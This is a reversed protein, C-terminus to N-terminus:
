LKILFRILSWKGGYVEQNMIKKMNRLDEILKFYEEKKKKIEAVNRSLEDRLFDVSHIIEDKEKLELKLRDIELKLSDIEESQKVIMKRQFEIKKKDNM